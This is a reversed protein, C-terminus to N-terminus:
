HFMYDKSSDESDGSTLDENEWGLELKKKELEESEEFEQSSRRKPRGM